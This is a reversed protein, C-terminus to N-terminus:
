AAMAVPARRREAEGGMGDDATTGDRGAPEGVEGM